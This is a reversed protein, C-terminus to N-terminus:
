ATKSNQNGVSDQPIDTGESLGISPNEVQTTTDIAQLPPQIGLLYGPEDWIPMDLVPNSPKGDKHISVSFIFPNQKSPSLPLAIDIDYNENNSKFSLDLKIEM